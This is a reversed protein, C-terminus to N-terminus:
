AKWFSLAMPNKVSEGLCSLFHLLGINKVHSIVPPRPPSPLCPSALPTPFILPAVEKSTWSANAHSCVCHPDMTIDCFGCMLLATFKESAWHGWRFMLPNNRLVLPICIYYMFAGQSSDNSYLEIFYSELLFLFLLTVCIDTLVSTTVPAEGRGKPVINITM